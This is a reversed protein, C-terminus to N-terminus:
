PQIPVSGPRCPRWAASLLKADWEFHGRSYFIRYCRAAPPREKGQAVAPPHRTRLLHLLHVLFHCSYISCTWTSLCTFVKSKQARTRKVASCKSSTLTCYTGFFVPAHERLDTCFSIAFYSVLCVSHWLIGRRPYSLLVCVLCFLLATIGRDAGANSRLVTVGLM